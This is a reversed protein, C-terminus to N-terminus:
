HGAPKHTGTTPRGATHRDIDGRDGPTTTRDTRQQAIWQDRDIGSREVAKRDADCLGRRLYGDVVKGCAVCISRNPRDEDSAHAAIRTITNQVTRAAHELQRLQTLLTLDIDDWESANPYELRRLVDREVSTTTDAGSGGEGLTGSSWGRAALEPALRLATPGTDRLIEETRTLTTRLQWLDPKM